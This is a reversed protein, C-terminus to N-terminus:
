TIISGVEQREREELISMVEKVKDDRKYENDIIVVQCVGNTIAAELIAIAGDVTVDNYRVDLLKITHRNILSEALLKAGSVISM